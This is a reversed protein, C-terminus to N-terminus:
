QRYNASGLKYNNSLDNRENFEYDAVFGFRLHIGRFPPKLLMILTIFHFLNRFCKGLIQNFIKDFSIENEKELYKYM